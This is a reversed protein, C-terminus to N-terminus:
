KFQREDRCDFWSFVYVQWPRDWDLPIPFAGIWTGVVTFAIVHQFYSEPTADSRHVVASVWMFDM